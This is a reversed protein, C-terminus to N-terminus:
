TSLSVALGTLTASLVVPHPLPYSGLRALVTRRTPIPLREVTQFDDWGHAGRAFAGVVDAVYDNRRLLGSGDFLYRQVRSHVEAGAPFEVAVGALREGRWRGAVPGCFRLSPLLFPVATYSAWAYGFFYIADVLDWRRLKRLGRFTRRHDVSERRVRGSAPDLLRVTGGEFVAVCPGGPADSWESRVLKPFATVARPLEFSRGYGKWRLLLGELSVLCVTVSQLREWLSWGGHRDIAQLVLRRAEAPWSPDFTPAAM